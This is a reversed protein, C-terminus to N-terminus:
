AQEDSAAASKRDPLFDTLLSREPLSLNRLLGSPIAGIYFLGAAVHALIILIAIAKLFRKM